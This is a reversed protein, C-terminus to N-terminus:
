QVVLSVAALHQPGGASDAASVSITYSGAPTGPNSPTNNGGGCAMVSLTISALLLGWGLVRLQRHWRRIKGPSFALGIVGALALGGAPIWPSSPGFPRDSDLRATAAATTVTLTSSVPSGGSPTVSAPSFACAAEGPLTGCTFKVTGAYGGTPTVTFTFTVTKGPTVPGTTPSAAVAFDPAAIVVTVASSTSGSNNADGQYTATTSYSGAVAFSTELTAVGSSLTATGLNTTGAAFSVKGTPSSGSVMAKLTIQGNLDGASPSAQLITTATAQTITLGVAASTSATNKSDGSYTATITYNGANAFSTQLTATGNALAESGLSNGNATFTVSGTPNTGFVSGTLTISAGPTGTTPSAQLATTSTIPAPMVPSPNTQNLLSAVYISGNEFGGAMTILVDLTTDKALPPAQNNIRTLITANTGFNPLSTSVFYTNPDLTFDGKGDGLYVKLIPVGDGQEVVLLDPNGDGNVDGSAFSKVFTCTLVICGTPVTFFPTTAFTGDGKGAYIGTGPTSVADLIGDGNLDAIAVAAIPGSPSAPITLPIQKFTGDGNGLFVADGWIFDLKGDKNLDGVLLTPSPDDQSVGLPVPTGFTGDGNGPVFLLEQACGVNYPLILDLKRDSNFDGSIGPAPDRVGLALATGTAQFRGDGSGLYSFLQANPTDGCPFSINEKTGSNIALTDVKGDGNFDGTMLSYNSNTLPPLPTTQDLIAFAGNGRGLAAGFYNGGQPPLFVIDSIGDNNVDVIPGYVPTGPAAQFTGDGNGPFTFTGYSGLILDQKGDGNVDAFLMPSGAPAYGAIAYSGTPTFGGKGDGHFVNLVRTTVVLDLNGDSTLAAAAMPETFYSEPTPLASIPLAVGQSFTGSSSGLLIQVSTFLSTNSPAVLLLALDTTGDGNFDGTTFSTFSAISQTQAANLTGDGNGYLISVATFTAVTPFGVTVPTMMDQKGDGNFDGAVLGLAGSPAAYLKPSQFVGPGSAGQNLLVAVQPATNSPVLAAVDLFGDGNFDAFVPVGANIAFHAPTQFTGDGNGLQITIYGDCSFVLDLKKDNNVDAFNVQPLGQGTTVPCLSTTVTTPSNSGVSLVIELNNAETIYALDAVRDGNFDGAFVPFASGSLSLETAAPFLAPPTQAKASGNVFGLILFTISVCTTWLANRLLAFNNVFPDGPRGVRSVYDRCTHWLAVRFRLREKECPSVSPM